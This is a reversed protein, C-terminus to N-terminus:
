SRIKAHNEIWSSQGTRIIMENTNDTKKLTEAITAYIPLMFSITTGQGEKSRVEISGGLSEVIAKTIYLGIGSGSVNERSRHSRYFKHFLNQMVNPPIGIGQDIVDVQVMTDGATANVTVVGNEPSYKIANDILNVFVETLTSTDAAITPLDHSIFVQLSRGQTEALLQMDSAILDYIDSLHQESVYMKMHRQDYRSANLINSIYGSLRNSSVILRHLLENYESTLSSGLEDLLVDLYGRIVTVPGRLEHAAFAIFDLQDDEPQYIDTKDLLVVTCPAANNKEYSATIDFIRRDDAGLPRNAIRHWNKEGRVNRASVKHLWSALSDSPSFLLELTTEDNKEHNVITPAHATASLVAGKEDLVVVSASSHELGSEFLAPAATSQSSTENNDTAAQRYIQELLPKLGSRTQRGESPNPPKVTTPEGSVHTLARSLDRLPVLLVEFVFLWNGGLMALAVVTIVIWFSPSLPDMGTIILTLGIVATILLEFLILAAAVRKHHKPWYDRVM